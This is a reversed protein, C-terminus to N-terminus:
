VLLITPLTLHTYSVAHIGQGDIVYGLYKLQRVGILSKEMNIRVNRTQLVQLLKMLRGDHEEKTKGFVLLDDQYSRVGPLGKIVADM